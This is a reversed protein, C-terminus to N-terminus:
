GGGVLRILKHNPKGEVVRLHDQGGGAPRVLGRVM